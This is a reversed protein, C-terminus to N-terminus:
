GLSSGNGLDIEFGDADVISNNNLQSYNEQKNSLPKQLTRNLNILEYLEANVMINFKSMGSNFM